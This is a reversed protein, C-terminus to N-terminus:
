KRELIGYIYPNKEPSPEMYTTQTLTKSSRQRAKPLNAKTQYTLGVGKQKLNLKIKEYNRVTKTKM